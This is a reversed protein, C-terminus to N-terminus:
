GIHSIDNPNILRQSERLKPPHLSISLLTPRFSQPQVQRRKATLIKSTGTSGFSSINRKTAELYSVVKPTPHVVPFFVLQGLRQGPYINFPTDSKNTVIAKVEGHYDPDITGFSVNINKLSLSSQPQLDCKLSPAFSM